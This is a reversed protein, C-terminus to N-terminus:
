QCAELVRWNGNLDKHWSCKYNNSLFLDNIEEKANEQGIELIIRGTPKLIQSLNDSFYKYFKIGTGYDTLAIKPEYLQIHKELKLYEKKTVYPPNSVILDYKKHLKKKFIDVNYFSINNTQHLLKNERAVALAHNSIDIADVFKVIKKKALTIAINGSGTGIDLAKDHPKFKKAVDIILETEPRPILTNNNVIFDYGYFTAKQIIYQFPEGNVRRDIFKNFIKIQSKSLTTEQNFILQSTSVSLKEKLFWEIEKKANNINALHLQQIGHEVVDKLCINNKVIINM